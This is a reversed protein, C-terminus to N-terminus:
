SPVATRAPPRIPPLRARGHRPRHAAGAAQPVPEARSYRRLRGNAVGPGHSPGGSGHYGDPPAAATEIPRGAAARLGRYWWQRTAWGGACADSPARRHPCPCNQPARSDKYGASAYRPLMVRSRRALAVADAVDLDSCGAARDRGVSGRRARCGCTGPSGSGSTVLRFVPTREGPGLAAVVANEAPQLYAKHHTKVYGITRPLNQRGRLPGDVVLLDDDMELTARADAAAEVEVTNLLGQVM